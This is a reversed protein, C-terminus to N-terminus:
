NQIIYIFGSPKVRLGQKELFSKAIERIGRSKDSLFNEIRRVAEHDRALRIDKRRSLRSIWEQLALFRIREDQDALGTERWRDSEGSLMLGRFAELRMEPDDTTEWVNTFLPVSASVVTEVLGRIAYLRVLQDQDQVAQKLPEAASPTRLRALAEASLARVSSSPDTLLAISLFPEAPVGGTRGMARACEARVLPQPDKQLRETLRHLPGPLNLIGIGEAAARRVSPAKDAALRDFFVNPATSDGLTVLAGLSRERTREHADGAAMARLHPIAEKDRSWLVQEIWSLRECPDVSTNCAPPPPVGAAYPRSAVFFAAGAALLWPLLRHLFRRM